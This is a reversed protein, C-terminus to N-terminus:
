GEATYGHRALLAAVEEGSPFASKRAVKRAAAANAFRVAVREAQGQALALAFGAHWTDGAGLTDVAQTPFTDVAFAGDRGHCLVPAAGRTVAVFLPPRPFESWQNLHIAHHLHRDLIFFRL